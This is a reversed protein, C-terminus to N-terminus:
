EAGGTSEPLADALEDTEDLEGGSLPSPCPALLGMAECLRPDQVPYAPHSRLAALFARALLGGMLAVSALDLWLYGFAYGNPYLSPMINFTMDVYHMVWTWICLPTMWRFSLKLDIRLLALFPLFFHGFILVMGAWWWTGKERLVYWFTEEPVNANWIIFYQSFHIYAYFVTFAFMLSGIFYFQHEHLVPELIGTRKLVMTIFYVTGLTMWVSGAFYYVGYMTSFWEYMLGKMWLFTGLTVTVAFLLIGFGSFRRMRFTCAASGTRDQELSAQRLNHALWWWVLFCLASVLYFGGYTFLPWKASLAHDAAPNAVQMWQFMAPAFIAIPIFFVAMWPFVLNALHECFRRIPVSWGADFLHHMMVLFLGGVSLSLFFMFGVLWSFAFHRTNVLLGLLCGVAGVGILVNPLNRWRTLDLPPSSAPPQTASM